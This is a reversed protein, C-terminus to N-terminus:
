RSAVTAPPIDPQHAIEDFAVEGVIKLILGERQEAPRRRM